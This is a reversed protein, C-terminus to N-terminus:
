SSITAVQYDQKATRRTSRTRPTSKQAPSKSVKELVYERAAAKAQKQQYTRDGIYLSQSSLWTVAVAATIVIFLGMAWMPLSFDTGPIIGIFIFALLANLVDPVFLLVMITIIAILLVFAKKRM